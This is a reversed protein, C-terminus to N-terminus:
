RLPTLTLAADTSARARWLGDYSLTRAASVAGNDPTMGPCPLGERELAARARERDKRRVQIHWRRDPHPLRYPNAFYMDDSPMRYPIKNEQLIDMARRADASIFSPGIDKWNGFM